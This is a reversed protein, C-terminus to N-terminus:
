KQSKKETKMAELIIVEIGHSRNAYTRAEIKGDLWEICQKPLTISLRERLEVDESKM